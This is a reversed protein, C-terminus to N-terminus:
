RSLWGLAAGYVGYFVAHIHPILWLSTGYVVMGFVQFSPMPFWATIRASIVSGQAVSLTVLAFVELVPFLAFLLLYYSVALRVLRVM